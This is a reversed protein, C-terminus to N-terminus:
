CNLAKLLIGIESGFIALFDTKAGNIELKERKKDM